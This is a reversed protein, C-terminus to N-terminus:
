RFTRMKDKLYSRFNKSGRVNISDILGSVFRGIGEYGAVPVKLIYPQHHIIYQKADAFEEILLNYANLQLELEVIDIPKEGSINFLDTFPFQHKNEFQWSQDLIDVDELRTIKFQKCIGSVPEFAWISQREPVFAFPEVVRTSINDGSSSRYNRLIVQKKLNIAAWVKKVHELLTDMGTHDKGLIFYPTAFEQLTGHWDNRLEIEGLDDQMTSIAAKTATTPHIRYYGANREVDFGVSELTDLDRYVTRESISLLKM